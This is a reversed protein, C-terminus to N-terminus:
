LNVVLLITTTCCYTWWSFCHALTCAVITIVLEGQWDSCVLHTQITPSIKVVAFWSNLPQVCQQAPFSFHLSCSQAIELLLSCTWDPVASSYSGLHLRSRDHEPLGNSVKKHRNCSNLRTSPLLIYIPADLNYKILLTLPPHISLSDFIPSNLTLWLHSM